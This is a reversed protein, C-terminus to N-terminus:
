GAARPPASTELRDLMASLGNPEAILFLIIIAGLLIRQVLELVGSDM